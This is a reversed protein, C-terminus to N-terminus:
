GPVSSGVVVEPAPKADRDVIRQDAAIAQYQVVVAARHRRSARREEGFEADIRGLGPLSAFPDEAPGADVTGLASRM